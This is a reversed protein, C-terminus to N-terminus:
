PASCAGDSVAVADAVECAELVAMLGLFVSRGEPVAILFWGEVKIRALIPEFAGGGKGASKQGINRRFSFSPREMPTSRCAAFASFAAAPCCGAAPLAAVALVGALGQRRCCVAELTQLASVSLSARTGATLTPRVRGM